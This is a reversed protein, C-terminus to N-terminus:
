EESNFDKLKKRIELISKRLHTEVTRESIHLQDAIEKYKMNEYYRLELVKRNKEPLENIASILLKEAEHNDMRDEFNELEIEKLRLKEKTYYNNIVKLHDIKNLCANHVSRFLYSKLSGVKELKKRQEWIKLFTHQVIEYAEDQDQFYRYAYHCLLNFYLEYAKSFAERSGKAMEKLM